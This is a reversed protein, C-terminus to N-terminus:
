ASLGTKKRKNDGSATWNSNNFDFYASSSHGKKTLSELAPPIDQNNQAFAPQSYILSFGNAFLMSSLCLALGSKKENKM